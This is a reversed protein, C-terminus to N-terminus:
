TLKQEPQKVHSSVYIANSKKLFFYFIVLVMSYLSDRHYTLVVTHRRVNRKTLHSAVSISILWWM